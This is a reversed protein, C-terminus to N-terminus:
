FLFASGIYLGRTGLQSDASFGYNVSIVNNANYIFYLGAGVTAHPRQRVERFLEGRYASPIGSDVFGYAGTIMGVDSFLLAETHWDINLLRFSFLSKRFEINGLLYGDAAIRNRNIGRLTFAGGPGDHNELSSHFVPLAYFPITGALKQQSSLRYAVIAGVAPVPIYQRLTTVQRIFFSSSVEPPSIIFYSEFWTGGKCHIKGQRTDYIIGSSFTLLDGGGQEEAPIVGWDLYKKYLTTPEASNGHPDDPIDFRQYDIDSMAYRNYEVGTFFRFARSTLHKQVLARVRLLKRHHSYFYKNIYTAHEPDTFGPYYVTNLGNFGYFDLAIDEIYSAEFTFVSRPMLRETDYLVSYNSTGKTSNYLRLRIHQVYDPLLDKESYDFFNIVAGYRLGLDSDYSLVPTGGWAFSKASRVPASNSLTDSGTTTEQSFLALCKIGLVFPLLTRFM